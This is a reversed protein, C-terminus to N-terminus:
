AYLEEIYTQIKRIETLERGKVAIDEILRGGRLVLIRRGLHVADNLEHTVMIIAMRRKTTIQYILERLKRKAVFDLASFPEDMLLIDPHRVLSRVVAARQRQGGSLEYPYAQLKERLGAAEFWDALDTESLTSDSALRVNEIVSLWPLLKSDQYVIGLRGKVQVRGDGQVAGSLLRLLTTKGSGSPGVIAVAEGPAIRFTVDSLAVFRGFSVSTASVEISGTEPDELM